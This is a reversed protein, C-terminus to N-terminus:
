GRPPDEEAKRLAALVLELIRIAHLRRERGITVFLATMLPDAGLPQGAAEAATEPRNDPSTM